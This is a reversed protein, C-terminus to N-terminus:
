TTFSAVMADEHEIREFAADELHFRVQYLEM